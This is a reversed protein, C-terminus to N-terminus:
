LRLQLLMHLITQHFFLIVFLVLTSQSNAEFPAPLILLVLANFKMTGELYHHQNM